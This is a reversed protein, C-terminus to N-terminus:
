ARAVESSDSAAPLAKDDILTFYGPARRSSKASHRFLLLLLLLGWGSDKRGVELLHQRESPGVIVVVVVNSDGCYHITPDM